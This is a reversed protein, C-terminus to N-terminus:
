SKLSQFFRLREESAVDVVVLEKEREEVYARYTDDVRVLWLPKEESTSEPLRKKESDSLSEIGGEQLREALEHVHRRTPEEASNLMMELFEDIKVPKRQNM